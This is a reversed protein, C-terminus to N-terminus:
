IYGCCDVNGIQNLQKQTLQAVSFIGFDTMTNEMSQVKWLLVWNVALKIVTPGFGESKKFPFSLYSPMNSRKWEWIQKRVLQQIAEPVWQPAKSCPATCNLPCLITLLVRSIVPPKSFFRQSQYVFLSIKIEFWMNSLGRHWSWIIWWFYHLLIIYLRSLFYFCCCTIYCGAM